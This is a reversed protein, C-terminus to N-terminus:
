PRTFSFTEGDRIDIEGVQEGDVYVTGNASENIINYKEFSVWGESDTHDTHYTTAYHVTVKVGAVGEGDDDVIRISYSLDPM